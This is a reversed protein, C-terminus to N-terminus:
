QSVGLITDMLRDNEKGKEIMMKIYEDKAYQVSNYEYEIHVEGEYIDEIEGIDTSVWVSYDDVTIEDPREASRIRGYDTM